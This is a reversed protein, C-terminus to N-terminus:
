TTAAMQKPHAKMPTITTTISDLMLSSAALLVFYVSLTCAM